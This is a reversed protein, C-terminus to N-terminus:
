RSASREAGVGAGVRWRYGVRRGVWWSRLVRGSECGCCSTWRSAAKPRLAFVTRRVVMDGVGGRHARALALPCPQPPFPLFLLPKLLLLDYRFFHTRPLSRHLGSGIEAVRGRRQVGTDSGLGVFSLGRRLVLGNRDGLLLLWVIRQGGTHGGWLCV